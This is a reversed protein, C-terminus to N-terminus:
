DINALDLLAEETGHRFVDTSKLMLRTRAVFEKKCPHWNM